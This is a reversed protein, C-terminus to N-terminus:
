KNNEWYTPKISTGGAADCFICKNSYVLTYGRLTKSAGLYGAPQGRLFEPLAENVSLGTLCNPPIEEDVDLKKVQLCKVKVASAEFIGYVSEIPNSTCRINGELEYQQKSNLPDPLNNEIATKWFKYSFESLAHQKVILGYGFKFKLSKPIFGVSYNTFSNTQFDETSAILADKTQKQRYCIEPLPPFLILSDGTWYLYYLYPMHFEWEEILDWKYYKQESNGPITNIYFQYGENELSTATAPKTIYEARLESIDPVDILEVFDSEYKKGESLEINLKYMTGIQGAFTVPTHYRGSSVETLPIINGENDAISVAAGSVSDTSNNDIKSTKLITIEHPGNETTVMGYIVLFNESNGAKPYFEYICSQLILVICIFTGKLKSNINM